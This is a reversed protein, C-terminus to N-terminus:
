GLAGGLDAILDDPDELGVSVRILGPGIGMAAQEEEAVRRHSTRAPYTWTTAVDGFSPAFELLRTRAMFREVAGAGGRLDFALMAGQRRPMLRRALAHQPHSPLRPARRADAGRADRAVRRVPGPQRRRPDHRQACPGGDGRPRPRHWGHRRRARLHVQDPQAGGGDRRPRHAPVRRAVGALFGRDAGRRAALARARPRAPGRPPAAPQLPGRRLGGEDAPPARGPHAGSGHCGRVRDRHRPAPGRRRPVGQHFWLSGSGGGSSRGGRVDGPGAGDDRGNGVRVRGRGGSRGPGGGAGRAHHSQRHRVPRVRLGPEQAGVGVRGHGHGRLCLRQDPLHATDAPPQGIPRGPRRPRRPDRLERCRFRPSPSGCRTSGAEMWSSPM